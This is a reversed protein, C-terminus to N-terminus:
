LTSYEQLFNHCHDSSLYCLTPDFWEPYDGFAAVDGYQDFESDRCGTLKSSLNNVQLGNDDYFRPYDCLPLEDNGPAFDHYRRDSKWVANHEKRNFPTSTNLYNEFGILDGM